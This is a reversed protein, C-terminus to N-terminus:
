RGEPVQAKTAVMAQIQQLFNRLSPGGFYSTSRHAPDILGLMATGLETENETSPPQTASPVTRTQLDFPM